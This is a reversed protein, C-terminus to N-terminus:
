YRALLQREDYYRNWQLVAQMTRFPVEKHNRIASAVDRSAQEYESDSNVERFTSEGYRNPVYLGAM